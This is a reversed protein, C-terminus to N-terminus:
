AFVAICAHSRLRKLLWPLLILLQLRVPSVSCVLVLRHVETLVQRLLFLSSLNFTKTITHKGLLCSTRPGVFFPTLLFPVFFSSFPKPEPILSSSNSNLSLGQCYHSKVHSSLKELGWHKEKQKEFTLCSPVIFLAWKVVRRPSPITKVTCRIHVSDRPLHCSQLLM